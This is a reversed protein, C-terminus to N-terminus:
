HQTEEFSPPNDPEIDSEWEIMLGNTSTASGSDISGLPSIATEFIIPINVRHDEIVPPEEPHELDTKEVNGDWGIVITFTAKNDAISVVGQFIQSPDVGLGFQKNKNQEIDFDYLYDGEQYMGELSGRFSSEGDFIGTNNGRSLDPEDEPDKRERVIETRFQFRIETEDEVLSPEKEGLSGSVKLTGEWYTLPHPNSKRGDVSVVVPGSESSDVASLDAIIRDHEWENVSLEQDNLTVKGEKEGFRGIITLLKENSVIDIKAKLGSISPVLIIDKTSDSSFRHQEARVSQGTYQDTTWGKNKLAEFSDILSYPRIPPSKEEICKGGECGQISEPIDGFLRSLLYKSNMIDAAWAVTRDWGIVAGANKSLLASVMPTTDNPESRAGNCMALIVLSNEPFSGCHAAIFQDTIGFFRGACEAGPPPVYASDKGYYWLEAIVVRMQQYEQEHWFANHQIDNWRDDTLIYFYSQGEHTWYDGHSSIWVLCYQNLTKFFDVSCSGSTEELAGSADGLDAIYGHGEALDALQPAIAMSRGTENAKNIWERIEAFVANPSASEPLAYTITEESSSRDDASYVNCQHSIEDPRYNQGLSSTGGKMDAQIIPLMFTVGNVFRATLYSDGEDTHVEVSEVEAQTNMYDAANNLAAEVSLTQLDGELQANAENLIDNIENSLPQNDTVNDGGGGNGGTTGGDGGDGGGGGGGNSGVISLLGLTIAGILFIYRLKKSFRIRSRRM